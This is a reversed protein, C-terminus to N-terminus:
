NYNQINNIMLSDQQPLRIEDIGVMPLMFLVCAPPTPNAQSALGPSALSPQAPLAKQPASLLWVAGVGLTEAWPKPLLSCCLVLQNTQHAAIVDTVCAHLPQTLRMCITDILTLADYGRLRTAGWPALDNNSIYQIYQLKSGQRCGTNNSNTASKCHSSIIAIYTKRGILACDIQSSTYEVDIWVCTINFKLVASGLYHTSMMCARLVIDMCIHAIKFNCANIECLVKKFYTDIMRLNCNCFSTNLLDSRHRLFLLLASPTHEVCGKTCKRIINPEMGAVQMSQSHARSPRDNPETHETNVLNCAHWDRKKDSRVYM